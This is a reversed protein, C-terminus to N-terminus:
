QERISLFPTLFPPFDITLICAPPALCIKRDSFGRVLSSSHSKITLIADNAQLTKFNLLKRMDATFIISNQKLEDMVKFYQIIFSLMDYLIYNFERSVSDIKV